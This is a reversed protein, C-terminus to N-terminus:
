LCVRVYACVRACVYACERELHLPVCFYRNSRITKWFHQVFPVFKHSRPPSFVRFCGQRPCVSRLRVVKEGGVAGWTRM